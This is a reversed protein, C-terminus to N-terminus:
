SVRHQETTFPTERKTLAPKASVAGGTVGRQCQAPFMTGESRGLQCLAGGTAVPLIPQHLALNPVLSQTSQLSWGTVEQAPLTSM